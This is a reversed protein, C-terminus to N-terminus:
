ETAVELARARGLEALAHPARAMIPHAGGDLLQDVVGQVSALFGADRGLDRDRDFAGSEADGVVAWAHRPLQDLLQADPRLARRGPFSERAGISTTLAVSQGHDHRQREAETALPGPHCDGALTELVGDRQMHVAELLADVELAGDAVHRGLRPRRDGQGPRLFDVGALDAVQQGAVAPKIRM